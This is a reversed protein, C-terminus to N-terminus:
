AAKKFSADSPFIGSLRQHVVLDGDGTVTHRVSGAERDFINPLGSLCSRITRVGDGKAIHIELEDILAADLLSQALRVGPEALVTLIGVDLLTAMAAKLDLRDAVEELPVAIVDVGREAFRMGHAAASPAMLLVGGERMVFADEPIDGATTLIVPRPQRHTAVHRVDLMPNDERVTNGGVLVADSAARLAHVRRRAANGTLYRGKEPVTVGDVTQAIKLTIHPRAFAVAAFFGRLDDEALRRLAHRQSGVERVSIGAERLAHAGGAASPHPDEVLYHVSSVGARILADTCPPTRGYHACPELTVVATAGRAETGAAELAVVEAHRGGVPETSGEAIVDGDRVLVCGVPPNPGSTGAATRGVELARLYIADRLLVTDGSQSAQNTM